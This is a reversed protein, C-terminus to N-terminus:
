LVTLEMLPFYYSDSNKCKHNTYVAATISLKKEILKNIEYFIDDVSITLEEKILRQNQAIFMYRVDTKCLYVIDKTSAYRYEAKALMVLKFM